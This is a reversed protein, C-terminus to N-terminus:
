RKHSQVRRMLFARFATHPHQEIVVGHDDMQEVALRAVEVLQILEVLVRGLFVDMCQETFFLYSVTINRYLFGSLSSDHFVFKVFNLFFPLVFPRFRLDKLRALIVGLRFKVSEDFKRVRATGTHVDTVDLRVGTQLDDAALSPHLAVIDQERDSKVCESEWRLVIGDFGTEMRTYDGVPVDRFERGLELTDAEGEIPAADDVGRFLVIVVPGLPNEAFHEVISEYEAGFREHIVARVALDYQGILIGLPALAVDAM